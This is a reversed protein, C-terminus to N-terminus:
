GDDYNFTIQWKRAIYTVKHFM